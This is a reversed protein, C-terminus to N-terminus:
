FFGHLSRTLCEPAELTQLLERYTVDPM